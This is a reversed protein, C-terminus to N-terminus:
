MGGMLITEMLELLTTNTEAQANKLTLNEQELVELKEEITPEPAIDPQKQSEFFKETPKILLRGNGETVLWEGYENTYTDGVEYVEESQIDTNNSM